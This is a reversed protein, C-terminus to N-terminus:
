VVSKRDTIEDASTVFPDYIPEWDYVDVKALKSEIRTHIKLNDISYYLFICDPKVEGAIFEAAFDCLSQADNLKVIQASFERLKVAVAELLM